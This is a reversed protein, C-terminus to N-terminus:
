RLATPPPSRRPMLRHVGALLLLATAGLLIQRLPGPVPKERVPGLRAPQWLQVLLRDQVAHLDYSPAVTRESGALLRVAGGDPWVFVLEHRQRWLTVDIEGSFEGLEVRLSPRAERLDPRRSYEAEATCPSRPGPVCRWQGGGQMLALHWPGSMFWATVPARTELRWAALPLLPSVTFSVSRSRGPSIAGRAVPALVDLTRLVYPIQRGGTELRLRDLSGGSKVYVEAPVELRVIGGAAVGSARVPWEARVEFDDGLRGRPKGAERTGPDLADEGQAQAPLLALLLVAAALRRRWERLCLGALVLTSVIAGGLYGKRYPREQPGLVAPKWPRDIAQADIGALVIKPAYVKGNGALLRVPGQAPWVFVLHETERWVSVEVPPLPNGEGGEIEIAPLERRNTLDLARRCPLPPTPVCAWLVEQGDVSLRRVLPRPPATLQVETYAPGEQEPLSLRLWGPREAPSWRARALEAEARPLVDSDFSFPLQGDPTVVRLEWLDPSLGRLHGLVEDPLTLRVVDGPRAGDARVPWAAPFWVEELPFVAQSAKPIPGLDAAPASPHERAEVTVGILRPPRVAGTLELRLSKGYLPNGSLRVERRSVPAAQWVGEAELQWDGRASYVRFGVDQDGAPVDVVMLDRVELKPLRLSCTSTTGRQRCAGAVQIRQWTEAGEATPLIGVLLGLGLLLARRTM